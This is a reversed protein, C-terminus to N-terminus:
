LKVFKATEGGVKVFYMGKSLASINIQQVSSPTQEVTMVREGLTNYIAIESTEDVGRKMTIFDGAPNPSININTATTLEEVGVASIDLKYVGHDQITAYLYNDLITFSLVTSNPLGVSIKAWSNGKNETFFVKGFGGVFVKNNDNIISYFREQEPTPNIDLWNLGSDVSLFVCGNSVNNEMCTALYVDSKDIAIGYIRKFTLGSNMQIWETGNKEISYFGTTFSGAFINNDKVGLSFINNSKFGDNIQVWDIGKNISKFFGDTSGLYITDGIVKIDHLESTFQGKTTWTRGM